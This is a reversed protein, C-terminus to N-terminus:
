KNKSKSKAKAKTEKPQKKLEELEAKLKANEDELEKAKKPEIYEIIGPIKLWSDAVDESVDLIKNPGLIIMQLKANKDLWSHVYKRNTNNKLLM